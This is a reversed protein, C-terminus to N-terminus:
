TQNPDFEYNTKFLLKTTGSCWICNILNENKLPQPCIVIYQKSFPKWTSCKNIFLLSILVKSNPQHTFATLLQQFVGCQLELNHEEFQITNSSGNRHLLSSDRIM